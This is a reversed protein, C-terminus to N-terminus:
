IETILRRYKNTSLLPLYTLEKIQRFTQESLVSKSAGTDIEMDVKQNNLHVKVRYREEKRGSVKYM